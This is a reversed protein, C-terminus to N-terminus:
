RVQIPKGFKVFMNSRVEEFATRLEEETNMVIVEGPLRNM